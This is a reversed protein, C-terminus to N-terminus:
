GRGERNWLPLPNRAYDQRLRGMWDTSSQRGRWPLSVAASPGVQSLTSKREGYLVRFARGRWSNQILPFSEFVADRSPFVGRDQTVFRSLDFIEPSCPAGCRAAKGFFDVATTAVAEFMTEGDNHFGDRAHTVMEATTGFLEDFDLWAGDAFFQPWALLIQQPIFWRTWRFRPHWFKGAVFLARSRTAIGASRAAAELVAMRQSCSGRERLLTRSAPRLEDLSYVPMIRQSVAAHIAQLVELESAADRCAHAALASISPHSGDLIKTADRNAPTPTDSM